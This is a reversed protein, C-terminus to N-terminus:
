LIQKQLPQKAYLLSTSPLMQLIEKTPIQFPRGLLTHGQRRKKYRHSAYTPTEPGKKSSNDPSVNTSSSDSDYEQEVFSTPAKDDDNPNPTQNIDM